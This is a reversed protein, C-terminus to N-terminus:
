KTPPATQVPLVPTAKVKLIVSPYGPNVKYFDILPQCLQGPQCMAKLNEIEKDTYAKQDTHHGSVLGGAFALIGGVAAQVFTGWGLMM